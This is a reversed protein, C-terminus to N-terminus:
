GDFTMFLINYKIKKHSARIVPRVLMIIFGALLKIFVIGSMNNRSKPPEEIKGLYNSAVLSHLNHHRM